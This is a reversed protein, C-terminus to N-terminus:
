LQMQAGILPLYLTSLKPCVEALPNTQSMELLILMIMMSMTIMM